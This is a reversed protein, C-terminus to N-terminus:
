GTKRWSLFRSEYNSPCIEAQLFCVEAAMRGFARGPDVYFFLTPEFSGVREQKLFKTYILTKLERIVKIAGAEAAASDM